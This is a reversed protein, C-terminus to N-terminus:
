CLGCTFPLQIPSPPPAILPIYLLVPGQSVFLKLHKILPFSSQVCEEVNLNRVLVMVSISKGSRRLKAFAAVLIVGAVFGGVGCGIGV